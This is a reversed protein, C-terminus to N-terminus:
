PNRGYSGLLSSIKFPIIRWKSALVYFIYKRFFTSSIHALCILCVTLFELGLICFNGLLDGWTCMRHSLLFDTICHTNLPEIQWFNIPFGRRICCV